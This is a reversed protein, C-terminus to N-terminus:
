NGNEEEPQVTRQASVPPQGRRCRGSGDCQGATMPDKGMGRRQGRGMGCGGRGQRGDGGSVAQGGNMRGCPGRGCRQDNMNACLMINGGEILISHGQCLATAVRRRAESLIRCLTATSIDMAAAAEEQSRGEADVLRLSELMDLGIRAEDEVGGDQPTFRYFPPLWGIRRPKCPRM